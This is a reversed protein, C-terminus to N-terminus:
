TVAFGCACRSAVADGHLRFLKRWCSCSIIKWATGSGEKAATIRATVNPTFLIKDPSSPFIYFFFSGTGQTNKATKNKTKKTNKAIQRAMKQPPKEGFSIRRNGACPAAAM